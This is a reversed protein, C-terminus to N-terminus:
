WRRYYVSSGSREIYVRSPGRVGSATCGGADGCRIGGQWPLHSSVVQDAKGSTDKAAEVQEKALKQVVVPAKPECNSVCKVCDKGPPCSKTAENSTETKRFDLYQTPGASERDVWKPRGPLPAPRGRIDQAEASLSLLCWGLAVSALGRVLLALRM